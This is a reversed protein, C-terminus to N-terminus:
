VDGLRIDADKGPVDGGIGVMLGFRISKFNSLMQSAVTAASITGYVGSPLCAIVINHGHIRGLLYTNQDNPTYRTWCQRPPPWSPVFGHSPIIM